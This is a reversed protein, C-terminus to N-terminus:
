LMAALPSYARALEGWPNPAEQYAAMMPTGLFNLTQQAAQGYPQQRLWEQQSASQDAGVLGAYAQGLGSFADLATDAQQQQRGSSFFTGRQAAGAGIRSLAGHPGQLARMTPNFFVNQFYDQTIKPDYVSEVKDYGPFQSLGNQLWSNIQQGLDTALPAQFQPDLTSGTKVESGSGGSM